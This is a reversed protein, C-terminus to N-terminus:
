SFRCGPHRVFSLEKGSEVLRARCSAPDFRDDDHGATAGAAAELEDIRAEASKLRELTAALEEGKASLERQEDDGADAM